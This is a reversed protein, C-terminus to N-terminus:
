SCFLTSKKEEFCSRNNRKEKRADLNGVRRVPIGSLLLCTLHSLPSQIQCSHPNRQRKQQVTEMVVKPFGRHKELSHAELPGPAKVFLICVEIHKLTSVFAKKKLEGHFLSESLFCVLM